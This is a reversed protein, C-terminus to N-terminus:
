NRPKMASENPSRLTAEPQSERVDIEEIEDDRLEGFTSLGAHMQPLHHRWRTSGEREAFAHLIEILARAGRAYDDLFDRLNTERDGLPKARGGWCM